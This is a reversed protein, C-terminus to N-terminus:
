SHRILIEAVVIYKAITRPADSLSRTGEVM